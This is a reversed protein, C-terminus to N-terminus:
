HIALIDNLNVNLGNELNISLEGKNFAVKHVQSSVVEGLQNDFVEVTKGILDAGQSLSSMRLFDELNNNMNQMQELSSFQAMQAIFESNDMPSLPDQYRLQTVLLQLFADKGLGDNDISSTDTKSATTSTANKNHEQLSLALNDMAQTM